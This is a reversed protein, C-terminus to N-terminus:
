SSFGKNKSYFPSRGDPFDPQVCGQCPHRADGIGNVAGPNPAGSQQWGVCWNMKTGDDCTNWGRTPCDSHTWKGNCGLDKLCGADGLQQAMTAPSYADFKSCQECLSTGSGYIAQPRKYADLPPLVGNILFYAVPYIMWDPHAPCGPCNVVTASLGYIDLIKETSKAKTKNGYAGPIGGFSSCTGFNLVFAAKPALWRIADRMTIRNLGLPDNGAFGSYNNPDDFVWCFRGQKRKPTAGEVVLVFTGQAVNNLEDVQLDGASAVITTNWTNTIYGDPFPAWTLSRPVGTLVGVADGVLLDAVDNVANLEPIPDAPTGQPVPGYLVSAVDGDYYGGQVDLVRNLISVVCGSCSQGSLWIVPVTPYNCSTQAALVEKLKLLDTQSFGLAAASAACAKLFDRRTIM